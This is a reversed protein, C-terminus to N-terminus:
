TAEVLAVEPLRPARLRRLASSPSTEAVKLISVLQYGLLLAKLILREAGAEARRTAGAPM